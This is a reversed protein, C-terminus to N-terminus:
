FDMIGGMNIKYSYIHEQSEVYLLWAAVGYQSMALHCGGQADGPFVDGQM